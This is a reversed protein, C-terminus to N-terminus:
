KERWITIHEKRVYPKNYSYSKCRNCSKPFENVSEWEYGCRLCKHKYQKITMNNNM